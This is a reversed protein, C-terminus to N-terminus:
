ECVFKITGNDVMNAILLRDAISFSNIYDNMNSVISYGYPNIKTNDKYNNIKTEEVSESLAYRIDDSSSFEGTNEIASKIQNANLPVYQKSIASQRQNFDMDKFEESIIGDNNPYLEKFKEKANKNTRDLLHIDKNSYLPNKINLFTAYIRGQTKELFEDYSEFDSYEVDNPVNYGRITVENEDIEDTEAYARAIAKNGFYGSKFVNFKEYQPTGHYVVLPEGNEDVVKSASNSNNEWDGFWKKFRDTRVQVYQKETLNSPKGNPALLRGQNDKPASALIAEEEALNDILENKAKYEDIGESLAFDDDEDIEEKEFKNIDREETIYSTVISTPEEEISEEEPTEEEPTEEPLSEEVPTPEEIAPEEKDVEDEKDTEEISLPKVEEKVEEITETSKPTSVKYDKSVILFQQALISNKNVDKISKGFIRLLIEIIKQLISKNKTEIGQIDIDDEKYIKSNLYEMLSKQTVSEVLWEEAFRKAKAKDDWKSWIENQKKGASEFYINPNLLKDVLKEKILKVKTAIEEDLKDLNNYDNNLEEVFKSYTDLLSDVIEQQEMIGSKDIETHLNEHALLRIIELPNSKMTTIGKPAIYVNGARNYTQAAPMSSDYYYVNPLININFENNGTLIDIVEQEIKAVKLLDATNNSKTKSASAITDAINETTGQEEVPTIDKVQNSTDIYLSESNEEIDFYGGQKNLSQHTKFANNKIIFEGFNDYTRKNGNFEVVLKGNEKYFYNNEKVNDNKANNITFFPKNYTLGNVIETAIDNIFKKNPKIRSRHKDPNGNPTYTVGTGLEDSDTRYKHIVLNYKGTEKGVNVLIFRDTKVVSFGNFLRDHGLAPGGMIDGLRKYVEEFTIEENQFKTIINVIEGHVDKALEENDYLRNSEALMALIPGNKTNKIIFGLNGVTFNANNIYANGYEDIINNSNGTDSVAVLSNTKHNFNLDAVDRTEDTFLLNNNSLGILKVDISKNDGLMRELEYTNKYNDFMSNKWMEYSILFDSITEAKSDYFIINNFKNAIYKAKKLNNDAWKPIMISEEAMLIEIEKNNIITNIEDDTLSYTEGRNKAINIKYLLNWLKKYEDTQHKIINAFVNDFRSYIKNNATSKDLKYDFGTKQRRLVFGTNTRNYNVTGVYGIEIGKYTISLSGDVEATGEKNLSRSVQVVTNEDISNVFEDYGEPKNTPVSVHMFSSLPELVQRSKILESFFTSADKLNSRLAKKNIFEYKKNYPSNIYSSINYYIYKAEEIGIAKNTLLENFLNEINIVIPQGEATVIDKYKVYSDIFDDIVKNFESDPISISLANKVDEAGKFKVKLAVADALKIFNDIAAEDTTIRHINRTLAGIITNISEFALQNSKDAPVGKSEVDKRITNILINMEESDITKGIVDLFLHKQESDNWINFAAERGIVLLDIEQKEAKGEIELQKEIAKDATVEAETFFGPPLTQEENGTSPVDSKDKDKDTEEEKTEKEKAEEEAVGAEAKDTTEKIEEKKDKADDENLEENDVVVEKAKEEAKIRAKKAENYVAVLSAFYKGTSAHGLKLIDAYHKLEEPINNAMVDELAQELNEQKEVWNNLKTSAEEYKEIVKSDINRAIDNYLEKYEQQNSPINFEYQTRADELGIKKRIANQITKKPANVDDEKIPKILEPNENIFLDFQGLLLDVKRKGFEKKLEEKISEVTGYETNNAVYELIQSRRKDYDKKYLDFAQQSITHDLLRGRLEAEAVDIKALVKNAYNLRENELFAQSDNVNDENDSIFNDNNIINNEIDQLALKNRVITRAAAMGVYQNDVHISNFVDNLAKNYSDNVSDMKDILIQSLKTSENDQLIGAEEFFKDFEKSTIFEKFLDYNGKDVADLTLKTVFDGTIQEKIAEAEEDSIVIDKDKDKGINEPRSLYDAAYRKPLKNESLLNMDEVYQQMSSVRENIEALRMKEETMSVRAYDEESMHKKDWKDQAKKYLNGLGTGIGQFAVGGLVGWFAQEWIAPDKLYSNLTRSNFSPDLIRKAVEKGKETQIGQYGEEIGESWEIAAISTLPHRAIDRIAEKRNALWGTKELTEKGEKTLSRIANRNAIRMESTVAKNAGKWLSSIAKFQPIDFLLMAYDNRFTEDASVSSIYKAIYEDDKDKFQPNNIILKEKEEKSMSKIKDLTTDYVENYVGRAEMYNELTRSLLATSGIENYYRATKDFTAAKDSIFAAKYKNKIAEKSLGKFGDSVVNKTGKTAAYVGKNIKGIARNVKGFKSLLNAGKVIATSPLLMSATSMISVANDAWWGFDGISWSAGPNEQYIKFRERVDNQLNELQLSFPNTYNDEGKKTLLNAGMDFLNSFGLATGLIVENLGMQVLSNGMQEFASQNKARELNLEEDTDYPNLYVNNRDVDKELQKNNLSYIDKALNSSINSRLKDSISNGPNFNQLLPSKDRGEKTKPNYEPNKSVNGQKLFRNIDM